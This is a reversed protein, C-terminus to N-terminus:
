EAEDLLDAYCAIYRDAEDRIADKDRWGYYEEIACVRMGAQKASRIAYLADEFMVCEEPRMHLRDAVETFFEKKAKTYGIEDCSVILDFYPEFGLRKLATMAYRLPTATAVALSYGEERLRGLLRYIDEKPQVRTAYEEDICDLMGQFVEQRTMRGELQPMLADMAAYCTSEPIGRLAEPPEISHRRMFGIFASRWAYMSHILTGDMDFVMAKYRSIM